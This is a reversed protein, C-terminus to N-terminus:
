GAFSDPRIAAINVVTSCPGHGATASATAEPQRPKADSLLYVVPLDLLLM